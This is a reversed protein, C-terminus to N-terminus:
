ECRLADMPQVRAARQAPIWTAALAVALLLLVGASLTLPDDARIGYLM